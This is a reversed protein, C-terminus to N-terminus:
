RKFHRKGSHAYQVQPKSGIDLFDIMADIQDDHDHSMDSKFAECETIFESVWPAHRPLWVRRSELIAQVDMFRTLKDTNRQVAKVPVKSTNKITQILGTGSAKDEVAMYRLKPFNNNHKEIVKEAQKILEPSQWKGRIVDIIFYNNDKDMGGVLFVSYDNHEKTKQATDVYIALWQITNPLENYRNFWESKILDGGLHNPSQMYQSSFTFRSILQGDKDNGGQELQLLSVLSEKENWYSQRGKSDRPVNRPVLKAIHKPLTAIYDEDILAPVVVHRWKGTLSGDTTLKVPDETHLRQMIVVVPTSSKAKRSQITNIIKRNAKKRLKQSFVDEPKIPDDICILGTFGDELRGGRRGTVQGGMSAVFVHGADYDGDKIKWEKKNDTSTSLETQWLSQFDSSKVISKANDSVDSVLEASYSLYLFRARHNLAIGRPIVNMMLETKSGGPPLNLVLNETELGQKARSIVRDIEECLWVHHWNLLFKTEFRKKFFYRVFFEHSKECKHKAISLTNANTNM